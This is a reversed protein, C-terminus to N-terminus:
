QLNWPSEHGLAHGIEHVLYDFANSNIRGESQNIDFSPINVTASTLAGNIHGNGSEPRLGTDSFIILADDSDVPEFRIGTIETWAMLARQALMQGTESLASINVTLSGGTSIPFKLRHLREPYGEPALM